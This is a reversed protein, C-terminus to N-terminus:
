SIVIPMIIGLADPCAPAFKASGGKANKARPNNTPKVRIAKGEGSIELTVGRESGIACALQYLLEADISVSFKTEDRPTVQDINPYKGFDGRAFEQGDAMKVVGNATFEPSELKSKRSAKLAAPCIYGAVDAAGALVPVIAAITGNTALLRDKHIGAADRQFYVHNLIQRTPDCSCAKEIEIQKPLKM